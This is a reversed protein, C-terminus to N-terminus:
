WMPSFFWLPRPTCIETKQAYLFKLWQNPTSSVNLYVLSPTNALPGAMHIRARHHQSQPHKLWIVYFLPPTLRYSCDVKKFDAKKSSLFVFADVLSGVRLNILYTTASSYHCFATYRVYWSIHRYQVTYLLNELHFIHDRHGSLLYEVAITAIFVQLFTILTNDTFWSATYQIIDM